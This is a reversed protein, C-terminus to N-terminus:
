GAESAQLAVISGRLRKHRHDIALSMYSFSASL